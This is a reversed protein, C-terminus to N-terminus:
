CFMIWLKAFEILKRALGELSRYDIRFLTKIQACFYIFSFPYRYPAGVKNQNILSLEEEWNNFIGFDFLLEGRKVLKENYTKWNIIYKYKKKSHKFKKDKGKIKRFIVISQKKQLNTNKPL